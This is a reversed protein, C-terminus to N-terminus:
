QLVWINKIDLDPVQKAINKILSFYKDEISLIYTTVVTETNYKPAIYIAKKTATIEEKLGKATKALNEQIREKDWEIDWEVLHIVKNLETEMADLAYEYQARVIEEQLTEETM